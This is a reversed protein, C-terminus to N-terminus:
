RLNQLQLSTLTKCVSHSHSHSHCDAWLALVALGHCPRAWCNAHANIPSTCVQVQCQLKKNALGAGAFDTVCLTAIRNTPSLVTQWSVPVCQCDPATSMVRAAGACHPQMGSPYEALVSSGRVKASSSLVTRPPVHAHRATALCWHHQLTDALYMCICCCSASDTAIACLAFHDYSGHFCTHRQCIRM